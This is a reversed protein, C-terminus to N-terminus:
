MCGYLCSVDPSGMWMCRRCRSLLAAPRHKSGAPLPQLHTLISGGVRLLGDFPQM